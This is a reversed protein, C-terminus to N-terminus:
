RPPLAPESLATTGNGEAPVAPGVCLEHAL